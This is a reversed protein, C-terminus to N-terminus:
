HPRACSPLILSVRYPRFWDSRQSGFLSRGFTAPAKPKEAIKGVVPELAHFVSDLKPLTNCIPCYEMHTIFGVAKKKMYILLTRGNLTGVSFFQVDKHNSLKQPARSM